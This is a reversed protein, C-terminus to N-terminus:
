RKSKCKGTNCCSDKKFGKRNSMNTSITKHSTATGKTKTPAKM